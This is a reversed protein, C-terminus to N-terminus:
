YSQTSDEWHKLKNKANMLYLHHLTMILNKTKMTRRSVATRFLALELQGTLLLDLRVMEMRRKGSAAVSRNDSHHNQRWDETGGRVAAKLVCM